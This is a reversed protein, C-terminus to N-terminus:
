NKEITVKPPNAYDEWWQDISEKKPAGDAVIFRYKSVYPKGPEIKWDGLQSPAFCFFPETPHLRMPQPSRFNEPHSLIAVGTREGDVDGSIHCWSGRTENGKKRDTEGNSTLFYCNGEGNWAWNGRFGLGGYYYKPLILESATACTQTSVLDFVFFNPNPIQYTTVNWTENLATKPEPATQDVFRHEAQFGAHVPGRWKEVFRVFEVRGKKQGMNWFDPERGEFSTKTWPFWIGHHHIHNSPYDDTVLRGSPSLVPHIYGGRKFEPKIDARPLESEEGQYVLVKQNRATLTIQGAKLDANAENERPKNDSESFTYRQISKPAMAPVVFSLKGGANRQFILPGGPGALIGNPPVKADGVPVTAIVNTLARTGSEIKITFDGKSISVASFCLIVACISKM